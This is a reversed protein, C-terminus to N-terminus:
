ATPRKNSDQRARWRFRWNELDLVARSYSSGTAAPRTRSDDLLDHLRTLAARRGAEDTDPYIELTTSIRTQRRIAQADRAPM